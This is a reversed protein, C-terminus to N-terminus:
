SQVSSNTRKQVPPYTQTNPTSINTFKFNEATSFAVPSEYSKQLHRRHFFHLVIANRYAKQNVPDNGHLLSHPVFQENPRGPAEYFNILLRSMFALHKADCHVTIATTQVRGTANSHFINKSERLEFMPLPGEFPLAEKAENYRSSAADSLPFEALRESLLTTFQEKDVKEASKRLFFGINRVDHSLFPNYSIYIHKSAYEYFGFTDRKLRHISRDIVFIIDLTTNKKVLNAPFLRKMDETSFKEFDTANRIVIKPDQTSVMMFSADTSQFMAHTEKLVKKVSLHPSIKYRVPMQRQEITKRENEQPTASWTVEKTNEIVDEDNPPQEFDGTTDLPPKDPTAM